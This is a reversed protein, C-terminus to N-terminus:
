RTGRVPLLRRALIAEALARGQEILLDAIVHWMQAVEEAPRLWRAEGTSAANRAHGIYTAMSEIAEGMAVRALKHNEDTPDGQWRDVAADMAAIADRFPAEAARHAEICRVFQARQQDDPPTM